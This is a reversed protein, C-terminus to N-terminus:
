PRRPRAQRLSAIIEDVADGAERGTLDIEVGTGAVRTRLGRRFRREIALGVGPRLTREDEASAGRAALRSRRAEETATLLFTFDAARLHRTLEGLRLRAGRAHNYAWTSLWYRDVVVDRGRSTEEEARRSAHAVCSAYFLHAADPSESYLIDVVRRAERLSADPTSVLVAPLREALERAITTKGM